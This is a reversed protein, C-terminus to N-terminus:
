LFQFDLSAPIHTKLDISIRKFDVCTLFCVMKYGDKNADNQCYRM